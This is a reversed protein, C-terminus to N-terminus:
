MCKEEYRRGMVANEQFFLGQKYAFAAM